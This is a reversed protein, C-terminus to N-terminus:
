FKERLATQSTNEGSGLKVWKFYLDSILSGSSGTKPVSILITTDYNQGNVTPTM